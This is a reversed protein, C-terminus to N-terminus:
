ILLEACFEIFVCLVVGLIDEVSVLGMSSVNLCRNVIPMQNEISKMSEQEDNNLIFCSHTHSIDHKWTTEQVIVM